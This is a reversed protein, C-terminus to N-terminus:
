KNEESIFGSSIRNRPIILPKKGKNRGKKIGKKRKKRRKKKQSESHPHRPRSGEVRFSEDSSFSVHISIRNRENAYSYEFIEKLENPTLLCVYEKENKNEEEENKKEENKTEENKKEENKTEENKTEENKKEENKTEKNKEGCILAMWVEEKEKFIDQYLKKLRKGSIPFSWKKGSEAEKKDQGTEAEKKDQGTEAEKKDQGTEAEKKDQGSIKPTKSRLIYLKKDKSGPTNLTIQYVGWLDKVSGVLILKSFGEKTGQLLKMIVAGHYKEYDQIHPVAM